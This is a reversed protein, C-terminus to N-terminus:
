SRPPVVTASPVPSAPVAASPAVPRPTAAPAPQEMALLESCTVFRFGRAVLGDITAPMAAITAEHIDHALLIGGPQAGDILRRAVVAPGPRKWDLPDVSWMLTKMGFESDIWSKLRDNTAGYPPRIVKSRVGTAEAIANETRIIQSRVGDLGLKTFSPHSWSHNAIEHGEDVIRKAIGPHLAVNEGLVFFTARVGRAKLLDLLRPTFKGHPGDDFTLAVVPETVRVSSYASKSGPRFGPAPTPTTDGRDPTVAVPPVAAPAPASMQASVPACGAIGVVASLFWLLRMANLLSM